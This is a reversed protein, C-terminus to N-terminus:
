LKERKFEPPCLYHIKLFIHFAFMSSFVADGRYYKYDSCAPQPFPAACLFILSNNLSFQELGLNAQLM